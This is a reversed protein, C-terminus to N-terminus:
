VNHENRLSEIVIKRGSKAIKKLNDVVWLSQIQKPTHDPDKIEIQDSTFGYNHIFYNGIFSALTSKGSAAPGSIQITIPTLNKVVGKFSVLKIVMEEFSIATTKNHREREYERGEEASNLYVFGEEDFYFTSSEVLRKSVLSNIHTFRKPNVKCLEVLAISQETTLKEVKFVKPVEVKELVFYPYSYKFDFNPFRVTLGAAKQDAEIVGVSGIQKTMGQIWYNNWGKENSKADDILKVKDGVKLGSKRQENIYSM